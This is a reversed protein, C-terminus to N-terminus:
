EIESPWPPSLSVTPFNGARNDKEMAERLKLLADFTYPSRGGGRPVTCYEVESVSILGQPGYKLVRVIIDGSADREISLRSKPDMDGIRETAMQPIIDRFSLCIEKNSYIQYKAKIAGYYPCPRVKFTWVLVLSTCIALVM